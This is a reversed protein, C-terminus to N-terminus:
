VIACCNVSRRLNAKVNPAQVQGTFLGDYPQWAAKFLDIMAQAVPILCKVDQDTRRHLHLQLAWAKALAAADEKHLADAGCGTLFILDFLSNAWKAHQAAFITYAEQLARRRYRHRLSTHLYQILSLEIRSLLSM